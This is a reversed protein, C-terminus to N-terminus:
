HAVKPSRFEKLILDILIRGNDDKGKQAIMFPTNDIIAQTAHGATQVIKEKLLVWAGDSMGSFLRMDGTKKINEITKDIESQFAIDVINNMPPYKRRMALLLPEIIKPFRDGEIAVWGSPIKDRTFKEMNNVM